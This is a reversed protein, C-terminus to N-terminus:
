QKSYWSRATNENPRHPLREDEMFYVTKMYLFVRPVCLTGVRLAYLHLNDSAQRLKALRCFLVYAGIIIIVLSKQRRDRAPHQQAGHWERKWRCGDCPINQLLSRKVLQPTM